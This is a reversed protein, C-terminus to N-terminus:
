AVGNYAPHTIRREAIDLLGAYTAIADPAARSSTWRM